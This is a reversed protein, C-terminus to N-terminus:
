KFPHKRINRLARCARCMFHDLALIHATERVKKIIVEDGEDLEVINDEDNDGILIAPGRTIQIRITQNEDFVIHNVLETSNSFAMGLGVRFIGHTISKYYATSGMPTSVGVSDGVVEPAYLEDDIWVRYRVASARSKNHLFIDNLGFVTEGKGEGQLKILEFENLKGNKFLDFLYDYSHTKCFQASREDRIPFKLVGPYEKEAGLLAGDGGHTIIFDFGEDVVELGSNEIFPKLDDLFRGLLKVKM